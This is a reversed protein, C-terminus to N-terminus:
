IRRSRSRGDGAAARRSRLPRLLAMALAAEALMLASSPEPVQGIVAVAPAAGTEISGPQGGLNGIQNMEGAGSGNGISPVALAALESGVAGVSLGPGGIFPVPVGNLEEPALGPGAYPHSSHPPPRWPGPGIATCVLVATAGGVAGAIGGFVHGRGHGILRRIHRHWHGYHWHRRPLRVWWCDIM